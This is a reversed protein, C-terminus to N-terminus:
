ASPGRDRQGKWRAQDPAALPGDVETATLFTVIRKDFRKPRSRWCM